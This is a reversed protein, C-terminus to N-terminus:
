SVLLVIEYIIYCIYCVYCELLYLRQLVYFIKVSIVQVIKVSLVIVIFSEWLNLIQLYIFMRIIFMGEFTKFAVRCYVCSWLNM